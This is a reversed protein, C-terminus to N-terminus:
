DQRLIDEVRTGGPEPISTGTLRHYVKDTQQDHIWFEAAGDKMSASVVHYRPGAPGRGAPAQGIALTVCVGLLLGIIVLRLDRM